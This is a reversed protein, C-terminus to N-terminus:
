GEDPLEILGMAYAIRVLAERGLADVPYLTIQQFQPNPVAKIRGTQVLLRVLQRIAVPYKGKQWPYYALADVPFLAAPLPLRPQLLSMGARVTCM